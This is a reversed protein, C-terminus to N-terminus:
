EELFETISTYVYGKHKPYKLFMRKLADNENPAIIQIYRQEAWSDDLVKHSEGFQVLNRVDKNYLSIEYTHNLVLM